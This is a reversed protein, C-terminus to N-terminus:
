LSLRRSQDSVFVGHPDVRARVELWDQLRPYFSALLEPRMRADKALYVSGGLDAVLRDLGDLVPALAPLRAPVDFALTWGPRPFSLPALDGEGFRKLVALFSPVQEAQVRQLVQRLAAEDPVVCQYQVMGHRGYLRNWGSVGDLPYFYSALSQPEGLRRRPARRYWLENFAGISARNLLGPPVWAPATLGPRQGLERARARARPALADVPAHDASTVVGRGAGAGRALLDIWAVSYPHRDARDLAELVGDLDACRETNVLMWASPVRTLRVTADLIVGTLGLGGVTAWFLDPDATPSVRRTTGDALVLDLADVHSGFSGSAHHNKGHVDAAIAGGVTVFRTGPTVPLFWGSPLLLRALQDFSCGAEARITGQDADLDIVQDLRTMDLVLGGANQACDGYSRGLGRAVVGRPSGVAVREAIEAAEHPREVHARTPATRGWGSILQDCGHEQGATESPM